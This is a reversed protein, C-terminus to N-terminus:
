ADSEIGARNMIEQGLGNLELGADPEISVARLSRPIRVERERQGEGAQKRETDFYIFIKKLFIKKFFRILPTVMLSPFFSASDFLPLDNARVSSTPQEPSSSLHLSSGLIM